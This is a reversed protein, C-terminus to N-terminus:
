DFTFNYELKKFFLLYKYSPQKEIDNSDLDSGGHM